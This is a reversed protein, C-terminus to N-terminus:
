RNTPKIADKSFVFLCCYGSFNKSTLRGEVQLHVLIEVQYHM